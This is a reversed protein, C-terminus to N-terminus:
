IADLVVDEEFEIDDDVYYDINNVDKISIYRNVLQVYEKIFTPSALYYIDDRNYRIRRGTEIENIVMKQAHISERDAENMMSQVVLGNLKIKSMEIVANDTAGNLNISPDDRKLDSAIKNVVRNWYVESPNPYIISIWRTAGYLDPRKDRIYESMYKGMSKGKCAYAYWKNTTGISLMAEQEAKAILEEEEKTATRFGGEENWPTEKVAWERNYHIIAHKDLSRLADDLIRLLRNYTIEATKKVGIYSIYDESSPDSITSEEYDETGSRLKYYDRNTMGVTRLIKNTFFNYHGNPQDKLFKMLSLQMFNAYISNKRVMEPLPRDYVEMIIFKQGDQEWDFYQKWRKFQAAKSNGRTSIVKDSILKCMTEYNKVVMGAQLKSVDIQIDAQINDPVNDRAM